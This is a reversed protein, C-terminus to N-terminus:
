LKTVRLLLCGWGIEGLVRVVAAWDVSVVVAILRFRLPAGEAEVRAELHAGDVLVHDVARRFSDAWAGVALLLDYVQELLLWAHCHDVFRLDCWVLLEKLHM